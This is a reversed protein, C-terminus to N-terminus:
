NGSDAGAPAAEDKKDAKAPLVTALFRRVDELEKPTASHGMGHYTNFEVKAGEQKLQEYSAKGYRYAVVQDADGHAMFIPTDKNAASIVPTKTHLSLYTSMGVFGAMKTDSRLCYLTVSGGQSFGAIVIREPPIGKEGQEAILQQVYRGSEVLGEEDEKTDLKELSMIDYWGPMRFGMNITIPREPANPFIFRVHPLTSAFDEAISAWGHGQDGLGHLMIVAASAPQKPEHVIPAKYKFMASASAVVASRGAAPSTSFSGSGAQNAHEKRTSACGSSTLLTRARPALLRQGAIRGLGSTIRGYAFTSCASSTSNCLLM